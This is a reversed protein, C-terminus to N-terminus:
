SELLGVKDLVRILATVSWAQQITGRGEKPEKGDMIEAICHIGTNNYFHDQFGDIISKCEQVSEHSYDNTKLLAMMYEGILFPWVTGQHYATDRDWANGGYFPRFKSDSPSLTRM